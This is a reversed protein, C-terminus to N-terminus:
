SQVWLCEDNTYDRETIIYQPRRFRLRFQCGL